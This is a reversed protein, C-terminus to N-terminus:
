QMVDNPNLFASSGLSKKLVALGFRSSNLRTKGNQERHYSRRLDEPFLKTTVTLMFVYLNSPM